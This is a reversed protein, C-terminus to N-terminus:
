FATPRTDLAEHTDEEHGGGLTGHEFLFGAIDPKGASELVVKAMILLPVSLLAGTTGWVWGWFSLALLILLPNITLRRGVLTPTLVNAELAHIALYAVAPLMASWMDDFALLGGFALLVTTVTPGLYPIFNFLAALGGWMLPTPMGLAWVVLAVLAGMALNIFTVTGIYAATSDVVERIMRALKLSGDFSSRRRISEERVRTYTALFFYVLLLGFLMQLIAAPAAMALFDVLTGPGASTSAMGQAPPPSAGHRGLASTVQEAFRQLSAYANLVPELTARIQGIRQPLLTLWNTAPVIIAALTVNAITLFMVVCLFAAAASPVRHRELWELVPVLVIAVVMAATVPLFFVAGAKLAFPLALLLGAGILLNLSSLLRDRRLAEPHEIVIRTPEEAASQQRDM